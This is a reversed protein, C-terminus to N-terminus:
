GGHYLESQERLERSKEFSNRIKVDEQHTYDPTEYYDKSIRKQEKLVAKKPLDSKSKVLKGNLYIQTKPRGM